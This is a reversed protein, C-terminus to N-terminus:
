RSIKFEVKKRDVSKQTTNIINQKITNERNIVDVVEKAEITVGTEAEIEASSDAGSM